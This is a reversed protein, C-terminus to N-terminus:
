NAMRIKVFALDGVEVDHGNAGEEESLFLEISFEAGKNKGEVIEVVIEGTKVENVVVKVEDDDDDLM